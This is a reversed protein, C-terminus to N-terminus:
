SGNTIIEEGMIKKIFNVHDLWIELTNKDGPQFSKVECLYWPILIENQINCTLWTIEESMFCICVRWISNPRTDLCGNVIKPPFYDSEIMKLVDLLTM